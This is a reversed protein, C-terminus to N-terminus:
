VDEKTKDVEDQLIAIQEEKEKLKVRNQEEM